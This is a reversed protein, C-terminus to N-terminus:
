ATRANADPDIAEDPGPTIMALERMLWAHHGCLVQFLADEGGEQMMAADRWARVIRLQGGLWCSLSARDTPLCM